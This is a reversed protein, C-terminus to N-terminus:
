LVGNAADLDIGTYRAFEPRAGWGSTTIGNITQTCQVRDALVNLADSVWATRAETDSVPPQSPIAATPPCPCTPVPAITASPNVVANVSPGGSAPNSPQLGIGVLASAGAAVLLLLVPVVVVRSGRQPTVNSSSM